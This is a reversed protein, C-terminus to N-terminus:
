DEELWDEFCDDCITLSRRSKTQGACQLCQHAPFFKESRGERSEEFIELLTSLSVLIEERGNNCKVVLEGGPMFTIGTPRIV